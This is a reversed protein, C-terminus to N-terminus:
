PAAALTRRVAGILRNSHGAAAEDILGPDRTVAEAMDRAVEPRVADLAVRARDFAVKQHELVPTGQREAQLIASASRAVQEM